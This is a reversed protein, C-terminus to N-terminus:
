GVGNGGGGKKYPKYYFVGNDGAEKKINKSAVLTDLIEELTTKSFNATNVVLIDSFTAKKRKQILDLVNWIDQSLNGRGSGKFARPMEIETLGLMNMSSEIHHKELILSDNEAMSLIMALKVIHTPKREYYGTLWPSVIKTMDKEYYEEYWEDYYTGADPAWQYEGSQVAIARLDHALDDYLALAAKPPNGRSKAKGREESVVFIVRSTFGGGHADMPLSSVLWDPTTGGFLTLWPALIHDTGKGKTKYVFRNRADYLDCLTALLKLEKFGLFVSLESSVAILSSHEVPKDNYMFRSQCNAMDKLLAERTIDEALITVGSIDELLDMSVTIASNKRSRGPPSVLIVFVNAHLRKPPHPIWVKRRLAGSITVIGAWLNFINPSEQIM